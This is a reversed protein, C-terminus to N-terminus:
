EKKPHRVRWMFGLCAVVVIATFMLKFPLIAENGEFVDRYPIDPNLKLAEGEFYDKLATKEEGAYYFAISMSIYLSNILTVQGITLKEGIYYAVLLYGTTMAIGTDGIFNNMNDVEAAAMVLEFETM